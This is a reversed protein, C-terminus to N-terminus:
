GRSLNRRKRQVIQYTMGDLDVASITKDLEEVPAYEVGNITITNM